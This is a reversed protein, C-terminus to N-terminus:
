AVSDSTTSGHSDDPPEAPARARRDRRHLPPRQRPDEHRDHQEDDGADDQRGRVRPGVRVPRGEDDDLVDEDDAHHDQADDTSRTRTGRTAPVHHVGATTGEVSARSRRGIACAEATM